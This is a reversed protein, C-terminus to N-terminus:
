VQTNEGWQGQKSEELKSAEQISVEQRNEELKSETELTDTVVWM